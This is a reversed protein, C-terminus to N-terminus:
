AAVGSRMANMAAHLYDNYLDILLTRFVPKWIASEDLLAKLDRITKDYLEQASHLTWDGAIVPTLRRDRDEEQDVWDDLMQMLLSTDAMWVQERSWRNQEFQPLDHQLGMQPGVAYWMGKIAADIGAWRHGMGTPDLVQEIALVEAQCYGYVAPQLVREWYEAQWATERQRAADVLAVILQEKPLLGAPPPQAILSAIRSAASAGASATDDLVVDLTGMLASTLLLQRHLADPLLFEIGVLLASGLRITLRRSLPLFAGVRIPVRLKMPGRASVLLMSYCARAYMEGIFRAKAFESDPLRQKCPAISCPLYKQWQKSVTNSLAITLPAIDATPRPIVAGSEDTHRLKDSHPLNLM